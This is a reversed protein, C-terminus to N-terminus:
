GMEVCGSSCSVPRGMVGWCSGKWFIMEVGVIEGDAVTDSEWEPKCVGKGLTACDGDLKGAAKAGLSAVGQTCVRTGNM